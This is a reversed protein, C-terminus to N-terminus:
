PKGEPKTPVGQTPGSARARDIVEHDTATSLLADVIQYAGLLDGERAKAAAKNFLDVQKRRDLDAQIRVLNGELRERIAPDSAAVIARGILELGDEVRGGRVLRAGEEANGVAIIDGCRRRLEQNPSTRVYRDMIEDAKARRGKRVCLEITEALISASVRIWPSAEGQIGRHRADTDEDQLTYTRALDNCARSSVPNRALVAEFLERARM